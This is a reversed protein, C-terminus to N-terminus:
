RVVTKCGFNIEIKPAKDALVLACSAPCLRITTPTKPDDFYWGEANNCADANPDGQIVRASRGKGTISLNVLKPDVATGDPSTKPIVFECGIATQQAERLKDALGSPDNVSLAHKTGGAAALQDLVPGPTTGIGIGFTLTQREHLAAAVLLKTATLDDDCGAPVGDTVIVAAVAHEPHAKKQATATFLAGELAASLPTGGGPSTAGLVKALKASQMPLLGLEVAVLRYYEVRCNDDADAPFFTLATSIGTTTPHAFFDNLAVKAEEWPTGTMSGSRDLMIFLDLPLHEAGVSLGVCAPGAENPPTAVGADAFTTSPPDGFGDRSSTCDCLSTAVSVSAVLTLIASVRTAM